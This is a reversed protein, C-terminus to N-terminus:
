KGARGAAPSKTVPAKPAPKLQEEFASAQNDGLPAYETRFLKVQLLAKDRPGNKVLQAVRAVEDTYQKYLADAATEAQPVFKEKGGRAAARAFALYAEGPKHQKELNPAKLYLPMPDGLPSDLDTLGKEFWDPPPITHGMDPVEYYTVHAFGLSKYLNFVCLTNFQNPDKTGTLLPYRNNERARKVITMDPNPWFGNYFRNGGGAPAPVYPDCGILPFAGTFVDAYLVGVQSSIRGGGSGGTAYVREDDITFHRRGQAVAELARYRRL